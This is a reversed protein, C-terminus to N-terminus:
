ETCVFLWSLNAEAFIYNHSVFKIIQFFHTHWVFPDNWFWLYRQVCIIISMSDVESM